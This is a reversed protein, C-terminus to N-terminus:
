PLVWLLMLMLSDQLYIKRLSAAEELLNQMREARLRLRASIQRNAYFKAALINAYYLYRNILRDRYEATPKARYTQWLALEDQQLTDM